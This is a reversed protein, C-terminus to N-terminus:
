CGRFGIALWGYELVRRWRHSKRLNGRIEHAFDLLLPPSLSLPRPPKRVQRPLSQLRQPRRPLVRHRRLLGQVGDPTARRDEPVAVAAAAGDGGAGGGGGGGPVCVGEMGGDGRGGFAAAGGGEDAAARVRRGGHDAGARRPHIDSPVDAHAVADAEKGDGGVGGEHGGDGEGAAGGNQSRQIM